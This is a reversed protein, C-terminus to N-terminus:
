GGRLYIGQMCIGCGMAFIGLWIFRIAPELGKDHWVVYLMAWNMLFILQPM